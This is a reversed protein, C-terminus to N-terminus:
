FSDHRIDANIVFYPEKLSDRGLVKEKKLHFDVMTVELGTQESFLQCIRNIEASCEKLLEKKAKNRAVQIQHLLTSM